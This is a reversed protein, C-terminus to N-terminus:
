EKKSWFENGHLAFSAPPHTHELSIMKDSISIGFGFPIGTMDRCIFVPLEKSNFDYIDLPIENTCNNEIEIKDVFEKSHSRYIEIFAKRNLPSSELNMFFYITKQKKM